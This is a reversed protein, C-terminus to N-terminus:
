LDNLNSPVHGTPKLQQPTLQHFHTPLLIELLCNILPPRIAGQLETKYALSFKVTM